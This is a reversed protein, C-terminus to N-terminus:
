NMKPNYFYIGKGEDDSSLIPRGDPADTLYKRKITNNLANQIGKIDPPNSIKNYKKLYETIETYKVYGDKKNKGINFIATFILYYPKTKRFRILQREKGYFFDGIENKTVLTDGQIDSMGISESSDPLYTKGTVLKIKDALERIFGINFVKLCEFLKVHKSGQKYETTLQEIKELDQKSAYFEEIPNKSKEHIRAIAILKLTSKKGNAKKNKKVDIDFYWPYVMAAQRERLYEWFNDSNSWQNMGEGDIEEKVLYIANDNDRDAPWRNYLYSTDELYRKIHPTIEFPLQEM